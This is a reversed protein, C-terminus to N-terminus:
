NAIFDFVGNEGKIRWEEPTKKGFVVWLLVWCGLSADGNSAGWSKARRTVLRFGTSRRAVITRWTPCRLPPPPWLPWFFAGLYHHNLWGNTFLNTLNSWKGLPNFIFCLNSVVSDFYEIDQNRLLSWSFFRYPHHNLHDTVHFCQTDCMSWQSPGTWFFPVRLHSLHSCSTSLHVLSSLHTYVTYIDIIYTCYYISCSSCTYRWIDGTHWFKRM